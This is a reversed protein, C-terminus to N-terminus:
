WLKLQKQTLIRKLERPTNSEVIVKFVKSGQFNEKVSFSLPTNGMRSHTPTTGLSAQLLVLPTSIKKAYTKIQQYNM